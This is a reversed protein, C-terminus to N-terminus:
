AKKVDQELEAILQELTTEKDVLAYAEEMTVEFRPM